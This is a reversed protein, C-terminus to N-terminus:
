GHEVGGRVKRRWAAMACQERVALRERTSEPMALRAALERDARLQDVLDPFEREGRDLFYSPVLRRDGDVVVFGLRLIQEAYRDFYAAGIGPHRSCWHFEPERVGAFAGSGDFLPGDPALQGMLKSSNHGAMYSAAGASFPQFTVRGKGWLQTLTESVFEMHGSKGRAWQRADAPWWGYVILHYHPRYLQPSYESVADFRIAAGDCRLARERLRKLFLEVDRKCVSGQTGRPRLHEDAITLTLFLSERHCYSELYLRTAWDMAQVQRCSACKGCPIWRIAIVDMGAHAHWVQSGDALGYALLPGGCM